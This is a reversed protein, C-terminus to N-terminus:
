EVVEVRGLGLTAGKGVHLVEATRLLPGFMAVDGELEM